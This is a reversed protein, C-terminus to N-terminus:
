ESGRRVAVRRNGDGLWLGFFWEVYGRETGRGYLPCLGLFARVANIFDNDTSVKM